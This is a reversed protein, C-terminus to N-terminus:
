QGSTRDLLRCGQSARNSRYFPDSGLGARVLLLSGGLWFESTVEDVLRTSEAIEDIRIAVKLSRATRLLGETAGPASVLVRAM